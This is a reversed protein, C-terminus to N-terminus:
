PIRRRKSWRVAVVALIAAAAGGIGVVALTGLDTAASSSPAYRYEWTDALLGGNSAGSFVVLLGDVDDFGGAGAFRAPPSDVSTLNSWTDTSLNLGWLDNLITRNGFGSTLLAVGAEPDVDFVAYDRASPGTSTPVQTWTNSSWSYSWTDALHHFSLNPGSYDNGGFLIFEDRASAFVMRGDARASPQTTSPRRWWTDNGPYYAWADGLYGTGSFGGFLLVADTESDYAVAADSRPSPSASPHRETWTTTSLSFTWTDSLRMYTDNPFEYWGGFLIFLNSRSDYVFSEDGRAMPSVRPRLEWWTRNVPDFEWTGNLGRVGDWGGFLVFRDTSASYGMMAGAMPVPAEPTTVNTWGSGIPVSQAALASTHM